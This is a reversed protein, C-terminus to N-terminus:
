KKIAVRLKASRARTNKKLEDADAEIPKKTKLDFPRLINGFEDQIHGGEFNGSKMFNKVLRDELSHFTIVALVGGQKLVEVSQTLMEKLANLEDNVEIRLAQFVQAWYRHKDGRMVRECVNLLDSISEFEKEMRVEVIKEALTKANRVEGYTGFIQQLQEVSERNLIDAATKSSSINMRMDLAGEFRYSFGREATDFQFSSVGLDALIGDVEAIGEARLFRKLFRFNQPIFTLREDSPLNQQADTDQDFAILRANAGLNKLIEKSHGGGGFTADVYVGDAKLSLAEICQKLLVPVHYTTGNDKQEM